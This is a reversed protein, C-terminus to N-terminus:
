LEFVEEEVYLIGSRDSSRRCANRTERILSRPGCVNVAGDVSPCSQKVDGIWALLDPRGSSVKWPMASPVSSKDGQVMEQKEQTTYVTIRFIVGSGEAKSLEELRSLEEAFWSIHVPDKVIWLLHVQQPSAAQQERASFIVSSAISLGPTIGVGGAVLVTLAQSPWYFKGVGYPGDFRVRLAADGDQHGTNSTLKAAAKTFGGLDRIAITTVPADDTSVHAVTFPHWNLFSVGQIQIWVIQGPLARRIGKVQLKALDGEFYTLSQVDVRRFNYAFRIIRDVVWLSFGPLLFEPGNTTHYLAGVMFVFFLFHTYYFVEFFRRRVVPLSTLLILALCLWAMLGVRIRTAQFSIAVADNGADQMINFTVHTTAHTVTALGIWRHYQLLVPSPLRLLLSFLNSRSALLLALGANAIALWGYLTFDFSYETKHLGFVINLAALALFRAVDTAQYDGLLPIRLTLNLLKFAWVTPAFHSQSFDLCNAYSFQLSCQM